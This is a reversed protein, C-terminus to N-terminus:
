QCDEAARAARYRAASVERKANCVLLAAQYDAFARRQCERRVAIVLRVAGFLVAACATVLGLWFIAVSFM